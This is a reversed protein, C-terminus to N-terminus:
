ATREFIADLDGLPLGLFGLAAAEDTFMRAIVDSVGDWSQQAMVAIRITEPSGALYAVLTSAGPVHFREAKKAQMRLLAPFDFNVETVARLDVLQKQGPRCDPHKMYDAFADLTEEPCIAGSYRVYVVGLEPSIFFNLPM